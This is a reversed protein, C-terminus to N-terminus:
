LTDGAKASQRTVKIFISIIQFVYILNLAVVGWLIYNLYHVFIEKCNEMLVYLFLLYVISGLIFYTAFKFVELLNDLLTKRNDNRDQIKYLRSLYKSTTFVAFSTICFGFFISLVKVLTLILEGSVHLNTAWQLLCSGVLVASIIAVKKM